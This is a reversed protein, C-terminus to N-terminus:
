LNSSLTKSVDTAVVDIYNQLANEVLKWDDPRITNINDPEAFNFLERNRINDLSSLKGLDAPNYPPSLLDVNIEFTNFAYFTTKGKKTVSLLGYGKSEKRMTSAMADGILSGLAGGVSASASYAGFSGTDYVVKEPATVSIIASLGLDNALHDYEKKYKPNAVWAKNKVKLLSPLAKLNVQDPSLLVVTAQTSKQIENKLKNFLDQKLNWDANYAKTFGGDKMAKLVLHRHIPQNPIDIVIGVKDTEKLLFSPPQTTTACAGLFAFAIFCSIIKKM